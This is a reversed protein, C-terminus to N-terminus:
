TVGNLWLDYMLARLGLWSMTTRLWLGSVVRFLRLLAFIATQRGEEENWENWEFIILVVGAAVIIELLVRFIYININCWESRFYFWLGHVCVDLGVIIFLITLDTKISNNTPLLM